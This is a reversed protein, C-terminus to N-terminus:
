RAMGALPSTPPMAKAGGASPTNLTFSGDTEMTATTELNRADLGHDVETLMFEGCARFTQLEDLIAMLDPRERSFRAITGVCLNLHITAIIFATMDRSSVPDFHFEWFKPSLEAIDDITLGRSLCLARAREYHLPINLVSPRHRGDRKADWVEDLFLSADFDM